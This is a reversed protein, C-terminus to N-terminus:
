IKEAVCARQDGIMVMKPINKGKHPICDTMSSMKISSRYSYLKMIIPAMKLKGRAVERSTWNTARLKWSGSYFHKIHYDRLNYVYVSRKLRM